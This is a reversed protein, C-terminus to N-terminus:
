GAPVPRARAARAVSLGLLIALILVMSGVIDLYSGGLGAVLSEVGLVANIEAGLSLALLLWRVRGDTAVAAMAILPMLYHSYFAMPLSLLGVLTVLVAWTALAGPDSGSRMAQRLLLATLGLWAAALVGRVLPQAAPGFWGLSVLLLSGVSWQARNAQVFLSALTGPGFWFPAYLVAVLLGSAGAGVVVARWGRGRLVSASAGVAVARWSRRARANAATSGHVGSDRSALANAALALGLPAVTLKILAGATVAVLATSWHERRWLWLAALVFPVTLLDNHLRVLGDILVIPNWAFFALALLRRPPEALPWVLVASVGFCVLALLKFGVFYGDVDQAWGTFARAILWWAPGYGFVSDRFNAFPYSWDEPHDNPVVSFPNGGYVVWMRQRNIYDLVDSTCCPYTALSVVAPLLILGVGALTAGRSLSLSLSVQWALSGQRWLLALPLLAPLGFAVAVVVAAQWNVEPPGGQSEPPAQPM